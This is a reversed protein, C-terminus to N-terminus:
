VTKGQASLIRSSHVLSRQRQLHHISMITYLRVAAYLPRREQLDNVQLRPFDLSDVYMTQRAGDCVSPTGFAAMAIDLLRRFSADMMDM